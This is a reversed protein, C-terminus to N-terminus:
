TALALIVDGFALAIVLPLSWSLYEVAEEILDEGLWAALRSENFLLMILGLATGQAVYGYWFLRMFMSDIGLAPYSISVSFNLAILSFVATVVWNVREHIDTKVWICLVPLMLIVALPAFLSAVYARALRAIGVSAQLESHLMGDLGRVEDGTFNVRPGVTWEPLSVAPSITSREVDAQEHVLRVQRADHDPSTLQVVLRQSDFPFRALDIPTEFTGRIRQTYEIRGDAHIRFSTDRSEPEGALNVIEIRPDWLEARRADAEDRIWTKRDTGAQLRDFATSPDQWRLLVDVTADFTGAAEDVRTVESVSVASAVHVPLQVDRPLPAPAALALSAVLAIM